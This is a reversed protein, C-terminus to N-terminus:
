EQKAVGETLERTSAELAVAADRHRRAHWVMALFMASMLPVEFLEGWQQSGNHADNTILLGTVFGQALLVGFTTNLGWVRFGYLVTLSFWILHFPITEWEPWLLMAALNALAFCFWVLDVPKLRSDIAWM